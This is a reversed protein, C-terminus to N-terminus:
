PSLFTTISRRLGASDLGHAAEHDRPSGYRRLEVRPVGLALTRHPVHSLAQDVQWASTGAAYPEVLVVDAVGLTSVLASADFPRITATYLVTVDLDATAALVNDLMPGVALVTGDSGRRVVTMEGIPM